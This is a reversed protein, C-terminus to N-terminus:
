RFNRQKEREEVEELISWLDPSVDRGESVVVEGKHKMMNMLRGVLRQWNSITVLSQGRDLTVVRAPYGSM